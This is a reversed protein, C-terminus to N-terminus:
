TTEVSVVAENGFADTVTVVVGDMSIKCPLCGGDKQAQSRVDWPCCLPYNDCVPQVCDPVGPCSGQTSCVIGFSASLATQACSGLSQGQCGYPASYEFEAFCGSPRTEQFGLYYATGAGTSTPPTVTVTKNNDGSIVLGPSGEGGTAGWSYPGSGGVATYVVSGGGSCINGGGSISIESLDEHNMCREVCKDVTAEEHDGECADFAPESFSGTERGCFEKATETECHLSSFGNRNYDEQCMERCGEEDTPCGSSATLLACICETQEQLGFSSFDCGKAATSSAGCDPEKAGQRDTPLGTVPDYGPIEGTEPDPCRYTLLIEEEAEIGKETGDNIKAKVVSLDPGTGISPGTYTLIAVSKAM